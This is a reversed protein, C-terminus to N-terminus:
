DIWKPANVYVTSEGRRLGKSGEVIERTEEASNGRVGALSVSWSCLHEDEGVRSRWLAVSRCFIAAKCFSMLILMTYRTGLRLIDNNTDVDVDIGLSLSGDIFGLCRLYLASTRSLNRRQGQSESRSPGGRPAQPTVSYIVHNFPMTGLWALWRQRQARPASPLHAGCCGQEFVLGATDDEDPAVGGKRPLRAVRCSPPERRDLEHHGLRGLRGLDGPRKLDRRRRQETPARVERSVSEGAQQGVLTPGLALAQEVRLLDLCHLYQAGLALAQPLDGSM